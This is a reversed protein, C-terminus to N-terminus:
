SPCSCASSSYLLWAKGANLVACYRTPRSSTCVLTPSRRRTQRPSSRPLRRPPFFGIVPSCPTDPPRSLLCRQAAQARSEKGPLTPCDLPPCSATFTDSEINPFATAQPYSHPGPVMVDEAVPYNQLASKGVTVIHLEDTEKRVLHSLAWRLMTQANESSDYAFCIKRTAKPGEEQPEASVPQAVTFTEMCDQRVVLVPCHCNNVVYDSVSGLGVLSLISRQLSGMGRGGLIVLDVERANAYESITTAIGSAGGTAPLAHTHPHGRLKLDMAVILEAARKLTDAAVMEDRRKQAEWQSTVANVAGATAIPSAEFSFCPRISM